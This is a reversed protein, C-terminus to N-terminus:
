QRTSNQNVFCFHWKDKERGSFPSTFRPRPDCKDKDSGSPRNGIPEAESWVFDVLRDDLWLAIRARPKVSTGKVSMKRNNPGSSRVNPRVHHSSMQGSTIHHQWQRKKPTAVRKHCSFVYCLGQIDKRSKHKSSWKNSWEWMTKCNGGKKTDHIHPSRVQVAPTKLNVSCPVQSQGSAQRWLRETEMDHQHVGCQM